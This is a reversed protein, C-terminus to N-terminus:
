KCRKAEFHGSLDFDGKHDPASVITGSITAGPKEDKGEFEIWGVGHAQKPGRTEVTVPQPGTHGQGGGWHFDAIRVSTVDDGPAAGDCTQESDYLGIWRVGSGELVKFALGTKSKWSKGDIKGGFAGDRPSALADVPKVANKKDAAECVRVTFSGGLELDREDVTLKGKIGKEKDGVDADTLELSVHEADITAMGAVPVAYKGLVPNGNAGVPVTFMVIEDPHPAEVSCSPNGNEFFSFTLKGGYQDVRGKRLALKDSKGGKKLKGDLSVGYSWDVEKGKADDRKCGLLVCSSMLLAIVLRVHM